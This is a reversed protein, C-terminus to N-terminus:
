FFKLTPWSGFWNLRCLSSCMPKHAKFSCTELFLPSLYFGGNNHSVKRLSAITEKKSKGAWTVCRGKHVHRSRAQAKKEVAAGSIVLLGQDKGISIEGVNLAGAQSEQNVHGQERQASISEVSNLFTGQMTDGRQPCQPQAVVVDGTRRRGVVGEALQSSQLDQHQAVIDGAGQSCGPEPVGLGQTSEQQISILDSVECLTRTSARVEVSEPM